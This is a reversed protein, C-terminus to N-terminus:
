SFGTNILNEALHPLDFYSELTADAQLSQAISGQPGFGVLIVPINAAQASKVDTITDGILLSRSRISGAETIARLLPEPHPKKKPLTDAGILSAFRTLIGLDKLLMRALKEPKNTCVGLRWGESLLLDLTEAVGTYLATNVSLHQEYEQLFSQYGEIDIWDNESSAGAKKLGVKLMSRGGKFATLVDQQYHLPKGFGRIKLTANAAELLDRSTDALTGDLDFIISKVIIGAM